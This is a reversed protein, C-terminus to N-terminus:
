GHLFGIGPWVSPKRCPECSVLPPITSVWKSDNNITPSFVIITHFFERYFDLLNCILTTKGSGKSAVLLLSTEHPLLAPHPPDPHQDSEDEPVAAVDLSTLNGRGDRRHGPLGQAVRVKQHKRLVRTTENM